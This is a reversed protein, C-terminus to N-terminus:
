MSRAARKRSCPAGQCSRRSILRQGGDCGGTGPQIVITGEAFVQSYSRGTGRGAMTREEGRHENRDNQVDKAPCRPDRVPRLHLEELPDRAPRRVGEAGAERGTNSTNFVIGGKGQATGAARRGRQRGVLFEYAVGPRIVRDIWGKLIAPPQGWWNPHVIVIGDAAAIERCHNKM